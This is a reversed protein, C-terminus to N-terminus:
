YLLLVMIGYLRKFIDDLQCDNSTRFVFFFIPSKWDEKLSYNVGSRKVVNITDIFLNYRGNKNKLTDKAMFLVLSRPSGNNGDAVIAHLTDANQNYGTLPGSIAGSGIVSDVALYYYGPNPGVKLKRVPKGVRLEQRKIFSSRGSQANSPVAFLGLLLIGALLTFIKKNMIMITKINLYDFKDISPIRAALPISV